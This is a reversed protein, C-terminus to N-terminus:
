SVLHSAYFVFHFETNLILLKGYRNGPHDLQSPSAAKAAALVM